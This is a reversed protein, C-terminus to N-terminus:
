CHSRDPRSLDTTDDAVLWRCNWMRCAVPRRDYVTCCKHTQYPCKENAGKNLGAVNKGNIIVGERVPVLKCCLTCDGCTRNTVAGDEEIRGYEMINIRDTVRKDM